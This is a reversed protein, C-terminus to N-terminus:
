IREDNDRVEKTKKLLLRQHLNKAQSIKTDVSMQIACAAKWDDFNGQNSKKVSREIM